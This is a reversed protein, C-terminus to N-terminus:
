FRQLEIIYNAEIKQFDTIITIKDNANNNYGSDEIM